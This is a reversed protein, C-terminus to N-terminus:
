LPLDWWDHYITESPEVKLAKAGKEYHIVCLHLHSVGQKRVSQKLAEAQEVTAVGRDVLSDAAYGFETPVPNM